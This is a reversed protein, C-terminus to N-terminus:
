SWHHPHLRQLSRRRAPRPRAMKKTEGGGRKQVGGSEGPVRQADGSEAPTGVPLQAPSSAQECAAHGVSAYVRLTGKGHSKAYECAVQLDQDSQLSILDREEDQWRLSIVPASDTLLKVKEVLDDFSYPESVEMRHVSPHWGLPRQVYVKVALAM